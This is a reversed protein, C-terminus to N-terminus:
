RLEQGVNQAGCGVNEGDRKCGGLAVRTRQIIGGAPGLGRADGRLGAADGRLPLKKIGDVLQKGCMQVKQLGATQIGPRVRQIIQGAGMDQAAVSFLIDRLLRGAWIDGAYACLVRGRIISLEPHRRLYFYIADPTALDGRIIIYSKTTRVSATRNKPALCLGVLVIHQTIAAAIAGAAIHGIQAAAHNQARGICM